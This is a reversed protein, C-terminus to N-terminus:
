AIAPASASVDDIAAAILQLCHPTSFRHDVDKLLRLEMDPCDAHAMLRLPVSVDVAEDGTGQLLRVRFPLPLPDRLVLRTKGDEFLRRTLIYPQDDYDNPLTTQGTQLVQQQQAPTLQPWMSDETFDPAAAIGVIGHVRAPRARAVLLAIWGGMSSGVLVQPGATLEDLVAIADEAWDGICGDTFAGSSQGHGSYDFRLFARGNAKAWDQLFLAKTGSMDSKFGGLFVIGPGDGDTRAYALSRGTPSTLFESLTAGYQKPRPAM